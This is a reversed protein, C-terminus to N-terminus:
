VDLSVQTLKRAGWPAWTEVVRGNGLTIYQPFFFESQHIQWKAAFPAWEEPNESRNFQRIWAMYAVATLLWKLTVETRWPDTGTFLSFLWNIPSFTYSQGIGGINQFFSVFNQSPYHVHSWFGPKPKDEIEM